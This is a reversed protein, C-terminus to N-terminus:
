LASKAARLALPQGLEHRLRAAILALLGALAIPALPLHSAASLDRSFLPVLFLAALGTKEWPLFGDETAVRILFLAAIAATMLDYLLVVPM